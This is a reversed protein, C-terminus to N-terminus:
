RGGDYIHLFDPGDNVMGRRNCLSRHGIRNCHVRDGWRQGDRYLQQDTRCALYLYSSHYIGNGDTSDYRTSWSCSFSVSDIRYLHVMIGGVVDLTKQM